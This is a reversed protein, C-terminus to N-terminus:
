KENDIGIIKHNTHELIYKTFNYGIFGATGTILIKM